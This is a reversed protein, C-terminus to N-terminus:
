KNQKGLFNLADLKDANCARLKERVALETKSLQDNTEDLMQPEQTPALSSRPVPCTSTPPPADPKWAACGAFVMLCPLIWGALLMRSLYVSVSSPAKTSLWAFVRQTWGSAVNKPSANRNM